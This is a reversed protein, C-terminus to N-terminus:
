NEMKEETIPTKKQSDKTALYCDRVKLLAEGGTKDNNGPAFGFVRALHRFESKEDRMLEKDANEDKTGAAKALLARKKGKLSSGPIYPMDKEDKRIKIVPNELAGIDIGSKSGGIALGTIVKITGPILIKGILPQMNNDSM